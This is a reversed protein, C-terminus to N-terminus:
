LDWHKWAMRPLPFGDCAPQCDDIHSEGRISWPLAPEPNPSTWVPAWRGLWRLLGLWPTEPPVRPVSSEEQDAPPASLAAGPPRQTTSGKLHAKSRTKSVRRTSPSAGVSLRTAEWLLWSTKKVGVLLGQLLLRIRTGDWLRRRNSPPYFEKLTHRLLLSGGLFLDRNDKQAEELAVFLPPVKLFLVLWGNVGGKSCSKANSMSFRPRPLGNSDCAFGPYTFTLLPFVWGSNTAAAKLHEKCPEPHIM